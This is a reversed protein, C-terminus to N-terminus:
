EVLRVKPILAADFEGLRDVALEGLAVQAQRADAVLGAVDVGQCVSPFSELYAIGSALLSTAGRLNGRDLHYFAVGIQLIGQYLRRIPTSDALWITELTEHCAYFERRNFQGIGAILGPPPPESCRDPLGAPSGADVADV